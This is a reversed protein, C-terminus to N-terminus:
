DFFPKVSTNFISGHAGALRLIMKGHGLPQYFWASIHLVILWQISVHKFLFDAFVFLQSSFLALFSACLYRFSPQWFLLVQELIEHKGDIGLNM